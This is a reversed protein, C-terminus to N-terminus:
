YGLNNIVMSPHRALWLHGESVVIPLKGRAISAGGQM